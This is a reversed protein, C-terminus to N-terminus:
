TSANSRERRRLAFWEISSLGVLLIVVAGLIVRGRLPLTLRDSLVWAGLVVAACLNIAVAGGLGLGTAGARRRTREILLAAGIGVLVAGLLNPYFPQESGPVGLLEVVAPPFTILLAGLALNVLADILLLNSRGM